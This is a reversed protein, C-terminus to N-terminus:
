ASMGLAKAIEPDIRGPDDSRQIGFEPTNIEWVSWGFGRAQALGTVDSLWRRRYVPEAGTFQANRGTAGCEGMVIRHRDIGNRDAWSAVRDMDRQVVDRDWADSLFSDLIRHAHAMAQTRASADLASDSAIRADIRAALEDPPVADCPYPLDVVYPAAPADAMGLDLGQHTFALPMYYHFSFLTNSDLFPAPDLDDLGSVGGYDAGTLLLPLDAAARRAADHLVLQAAGWVIVQTRHSADRVVPENMLELAVRGSRVGALLSALRSIVATYEVFLPSELQDLISQVSYLPVQEVPHCDVIVGLGLEHFLGINDLLKQELAQRDSGQLQIFPGVDLTLRVFDFGSAAFDRMLAAPFANRPQEFPRSLYRQPDDERLAGWNMMRHIAGGRRFAPANPGSLAAARAPATGLVTASAALFQRRSLPMALSSEFM